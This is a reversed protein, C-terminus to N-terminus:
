ASLHGHGKGDRTYGSLKDKWSKFGKIKPRTPPEVKVTMRALWALADVIDDHLGGPFRLLEIKVDEVWPQNSPFIIRGQQMMSQATRARAVKDSVPKLARKGEAFPVGIKEDKIRKLLAPWLAMQIQGQELGFLALQREYRKLLAILNEEIPVAGGKFRSMDIIHLLGDYDMAGALLVSWDNSQKVGLALDGAIYVDSLRWDHVLPEYRFMSKTFIEGEEPVPNQQHLASWHRPEMTQKMRIISRRDFRRPHLPDGKSRIKVSGIVPEDHFTDNAPQYYEDHTAEQPFVLIDWREMNELEERLKALDEEIAPRAEAPATSLEETLQEIEENLAKEREKQRRILRGSLDDDHWRTNKTVIANAIFNHTRAVEIDFVEARGVPEISVITETMFDDIDCLPRSLVLQTEESSSCTATTASCVGFKETPLTTTLVFDRNGISRFMSRLKRHVVYLAVVPKSLWCRMTNIPQSDMGISSTRKASAKPSRLRRVIDRLGSGNTTTPLACVEPKHPSTADLSLALKDEGSVGSDKVTVIRQGSKLNKLRIWELGEKTEVLFPHRANARVINGSTTTMAYVDDEGQSAWNVVESTTLKGEDFTAVEDGPRIDRLPTTTGDPRLVPTDGTMCQICLIGGGPALRTYLTSSYWDWVKQRQTESDAEEADKVPDDIIACNHVLLGEAFFNGTTTQIDVVPEGDGYISGSIDKASTGTEHSVVYPVGSMAYDPEFGRSKDCRSRHSSSGSGAAVSM